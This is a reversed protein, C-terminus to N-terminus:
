PSEEFGEVSRRSRIQEETVKKEELAATVTTKNLFAVFVSKGFAAALLAIALPTSLQHTAIGYLTLIAIVLKSFQPRERADLMDFSRLLRRWPSM